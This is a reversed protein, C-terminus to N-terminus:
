WLRAVSTKNFGALLYALDVANVIGNGDIDANNEEHPPKNFQSLLITLDEANIVGDGNLDGALQSIDITEPPAQTNLKYNKVTYKLYGPKTIILTYTTEAPEQPVNLTYHGATNTQATAITEIGASDLLTVSASIPSPQYLITGSVQAFSADKQIDFTITSDANSINYIVYKTNNGDNLYIIGDYGEIMISKGYSTRASDASLSAAHINGYGQNPATEGPRYIYVEDNGYANGFNATNIRTITLGESYYGHTHAYTDFFTDYGSGNRKSRYELLIFQQPNSTPIAYATIGNASGIPSLTYRGNESIETLDKGWGTYKLRLHTNPLQPNPTSSAMIDWYEVPEGNYSYRYLDPLGFTHLAEHCLTSLGINSDASFLLDYLHFTYSNVEKGNLTAYFSGAHPWLIDMWGEVQGSAIFTLSDIFGDNNIDLNKGSLLSSADIAAVANTLLEYLRQGYENEKYGDPNTITHHKKYYNRPRSDQYMLVTNGDLGVLTTNLELLGESVTQLYHKLSNTPNNFLAAIKDKAVPTIIPNEDAFCLMVLVNEMRGAITTAAHTSKAIRMSIPLELPINKQDVNDLQDLQAYTYYGSDPNQIIIRGNEDHLYNFFEDGSALCCLIDGNPQTVSVPVNTLIGAYTISSVALLLLVIIIISYLVRCSIIRRGWCVLARLSTKPTM